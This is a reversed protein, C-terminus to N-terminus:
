KEVFLNLWRKKGYCHTSLKLGTLEKMLYYYDIYNKLKLFITLMFFYIENIKNKAYTM